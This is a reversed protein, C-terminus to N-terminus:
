PVHLLTKGVTAQQMDSWNSQCVNIRHDRQDSRVVKLIVKLIDQLVIFEVATNMVSSSSVDSRGGGFVRVCVFM